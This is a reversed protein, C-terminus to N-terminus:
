AQAFTPSLYVWGDQACSALVRNGYLEEAFVIENKLGKKIAGKINIEAISWLFETVSYNLRMVPLM